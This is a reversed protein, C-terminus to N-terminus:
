RAHAVIPHEPQLVEGGFQELFAHATTLDSFCWRYYIKGDRIIRRGHRPPIHRSNHFEIMRRNLKVDLGDARIVLEVIHPYKDENTLPKGWDRKLM